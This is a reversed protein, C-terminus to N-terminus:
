GRQEMLEHFVSVAALAFEEDNIHADVELVRVGPTLRSKLEATFRANVEPLYLPGGPSDAESWGRSPIVVTTPGTARNLKEAITGALALLDDVSTRVGSRFDYWFVERGRFREPMTDLSDFELVICDLGGPVIVQPIGSKGASELRDPGISGCYGGYLQDAFEHLAFDMVGQLLGQRVLDELAMGGIGNAHFPAVDYGREELLRKVHMAGETVFGFSTLGVLPRDARITVPNHVMGVMAAAATSLIKRSIANLGLLDIVSHMMVIDKTGILETMDRSAVTSVMLKPIGLPLTRMIGTAIHTGTGGGLGLIGSVRDHAFLEQTLAAAGETMTRVSLRRDGQQILEDLPIGGAQAVQQRSVDAMITPSHLIGVDLIMTSCGNEHMFQALYGVEEGKTDLTGVILVTAPM